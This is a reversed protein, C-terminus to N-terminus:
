SVVLLTSLPVGDVYPLINYGEEVLAALWALPKLFRSLIYKVDKRVAWFRLALILRLPIIGWTQVSV